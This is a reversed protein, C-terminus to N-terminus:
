RQWTRRKKRVRYKRPKPPSYLAIRHVGLGIGVIWAAVYVPAILVDLLFAVPLLVPRLRRARVRVNIAAVLACALVYWALLTV